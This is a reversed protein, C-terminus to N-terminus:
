KEMFTTTCEFNKSNSSAPECTELQDLMASKNYTYDPNMINPMPKHFIYVAREYEACSNFHNRFVYEKYVAFIANGKLFILADQNEDNDGFYALEPYNKGTNGLLIEQVNNYGGVICVKDWPVATVIDKLYVVDKGQEFAEKMGREYQERVKESAELIPRVEAPPYTWIAYAGWALGVGVLIKLLKKM